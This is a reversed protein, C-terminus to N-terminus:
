GLWLQLFTTPNEDHTTTHSKAVIKKFFIRYESEISLIRNRKTVGKM